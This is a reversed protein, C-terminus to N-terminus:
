LLCHMQLVKGQCSVTLERRLRTEVVRKWLQMSHSILKIGRYNICSQVDGKNKFIPILISDRWEEPMTESEM